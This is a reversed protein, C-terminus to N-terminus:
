DFTKRTAFEIKMDIKFFKFNIEERNIESLDVDVFDIITTTTTTISVVFDSIM